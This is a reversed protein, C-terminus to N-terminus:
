FIMVDSDTTKPKRALPKEVPKIEVRTTDTVNAHSFLDKTDASKLEEEADKNLQALERNLKGSLFTLSKNAARMLRKNQLSPDEEMAYEILAKQNMTWDAVQGKKVYLGYVAERIAAVVAVIGTGIVMGGAIVGAITTFISEQATILKGSNKKIEKMMENWNKDDLAKSVNMCNTMLYPNAACTKNFSETLTIDSSVTDAIAKICLNMLQYLASVATNYALIILDMHTKFGFEFDARRVIIKNHLDNLLKVTSAVQGKKEKATIQNLADISKVFTDYDPMKTINGKTGPIVDFSYNKRRLIDQYLVDILRARIGPNTKVGELVVSRYKVPNEQEQAISCIVENYARFM